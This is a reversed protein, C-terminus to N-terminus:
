SSGSPSCSLGSGQEGGDRVSRPLWLTLTAYTLAHEVKDINDLPTFGLKLSPLPLLSLMIVMVILGWGGLAWFRRLRMDFAQPTETENNFM